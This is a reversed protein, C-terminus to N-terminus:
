GNLNHKNIVKDCKKEWYRDLYIMLITTLIGNWWLLKPIRNTYKVMFLFLIIWIPLRVYQIINKRIKKYLLSEDMNGDNMAISDIGSVVSIIENFLIFSHFFGCHNYHKAIFFSILCWIHHIYLDIRKNKDSLMKIIDFILYGCFLDHIETLNINHFLFPHTYGNSLHKLTNHFSFVTFTICMLSRYMSFRIEEKYEMLHPEYKIINWFIYLVVIKILIKQFDLQEYNFQKNNM